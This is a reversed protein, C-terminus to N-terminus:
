GHRRPIREHWRKQAIPVDNESATLTIEVAFEEADAVLAVTVASAVTVGPWVIDYAATSTSTQRWTRRDVTVQGSYRETMRGGYAVKTSVCSTM